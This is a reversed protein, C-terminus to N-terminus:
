KYIKIEGLEVFKKIEYERERKTMSGKEEREFLQCRCFMMNTCVFSLNVTPLFLLQMPVLIMDELLMWLYETLRYFVKGTFICM